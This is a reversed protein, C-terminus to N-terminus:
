ADNAPHGDDTPPPVHPEPAGPIVLGQTLDYTHGLMMRITQVRVDYPVSPATVTSVILELMAPVVYAAPEGGFVEVIKQKARAVGAAYEAHVDDTKQM